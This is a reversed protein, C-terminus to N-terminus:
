TARSKGKTWQCTQHAVLTAPNNTLHKRKCTARLTKMTDEGGARAITTQSKVIVTAFYLLEFSQSKAITQMICEIPYYWCVYGVCRWGDILCLDEV